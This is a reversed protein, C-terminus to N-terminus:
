GSVPSQAELRFAHSRVGAQGDLQQEFKAVRLALHQWYAESTQLSRVEQIASSFYSLGAIPGIVTGNLLAVYRRACGLLIAHEIQKLEVRERFMRPWDRM